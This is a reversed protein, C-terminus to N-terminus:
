LAQQRAAEAIEDKLDREPQPEDEHVPQRPTDGIVTSGDSRHRPFVCAVYDGELIVHVREELLAQLLKEEGRAQEDVECSRGIPKRLEDDESEGQEPDIEPLGLRERTETVPQHEGVDDAQDAEHEDRSCRRPHEGVEAEEIDLREERAEGRRAFADTGEGVGVRCHRAEM